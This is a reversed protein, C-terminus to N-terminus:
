GTAIESVAFPVIGVLALALGLYQRGMMKGETVSTRGFNDACLSRHDRDADSAPQRNNGHCLTCKGNNGDMGRRM